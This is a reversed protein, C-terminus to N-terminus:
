RMKVVGAQVILAPCVGGTTGSEARPGPLLAGLPIGDETTERHIGWATPGLEHWPHWQPVNEAGTRTFWWEGDGAVRNQWTRFPVNGGGGPSQASFYLVDAMSLAFAQPIGQPNVRTLDQAVPGELNRPAWGEIGGWEIYNPAVTM